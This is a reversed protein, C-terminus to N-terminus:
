ATTQGSLWQCFCGDDTQGTPKPDSEELQITIPNNNEDAVWNYGGNDLIQYQQCYASVINGPLRREEVKIVYPYTILTEYLEGQAQRKRNHSGPDNGGGDGNPASSAAPQSQEAYSSWAAYQEAPGTWTTTISPNSVTATITQWPATTTAGSTPQSSTTSLTGTSSATPTNSSVIPEQVYIFGEVFTNNWVCFWPKQGPEVVQKQQLWGQDLQFSQRKAKSSSSSPMALASEPVVVVKDYFDQFYYAPGSSPADVDSVTIFPSFTTSMFSTQSGYCIQQDNSAYFISAGVQSSNSPNVSVTIAEAPEGALNCTWAAQQGSQTLCSGRTEQPTSLPLAFTGTPPSAGATPTAIASADYLSTSGM